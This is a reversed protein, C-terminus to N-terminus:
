GRGESARAALFELLELEEIIELDDIPVGPALTIDTQEEGPGLAPAAEPGQEENGVAREAVLPPALGEADDGPLSPGLTSWLYLLLAAAAAWLLRGVPGRERRAPGPAPTAAPRDSRAASPDSEDRALAGVLAAQRESAHAAAPQQGTLRSRLAEFGERLRPESLDDSEALARLSADVAEFERARAALTEDDALLRDLSERNARDLEDDMKASLDASLSEALARPRADPPTASVTPDVSQRRGDPRSDREDDRSDSM